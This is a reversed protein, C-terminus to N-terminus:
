EICSEITWQGTKLMFLEYLGYEMAVDTNEWRYWSRGTVHVIAACQDITLESLIRALKVDECTPQCGTVRRNFVTSNSVAVHYTM